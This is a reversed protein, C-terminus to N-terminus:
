LDPLVVPKNGARLTILWVEAQSGFRLNMAECGVGQSVLLPASADTYWGSLYKKEVDTLKLASRGAINLQGGQTHGCLVLDAWIGGGKAEAVRVNVVQEPSHLLAIACQDARIQGSLGSLDGTKAGAGVLAVRDDGNVLAQVTGDILAVGTDKLALRLADTNGDNDGSIAFKGMPARFDTLSKFFLTQAVADPATSGNLREVIGPSTYDGGLLLLDPNLAQLREMLRISSEATNVGCMDLDSVFLARTGDFSAPLDKVYVEAYKVHVLRATFFMWGVMGVLLIVILLGIKWGFRRKKPRAATDDMYKKPM